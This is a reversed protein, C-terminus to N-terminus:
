KQIKKNTHLFMRTMRPRHISKRPYGVLNNGNSADPSKGLGAMIVREAWRQNKWSGYKVGKIQSSVFRLM